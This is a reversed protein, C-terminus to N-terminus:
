ALILDSIFSKKLNEFIKQAKPTWFSFYKGMFVKFTAVM